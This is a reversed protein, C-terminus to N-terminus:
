TSWSFFPKWTAMYADLGGAYLPPPADFMLMESHHDVRIGAINKERVAKAWREILTRIDMEDKSSPVELREETMRRGTANVRLTEGEM